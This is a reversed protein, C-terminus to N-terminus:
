ARSLGIVGIASPGGHCTIVNGAKIWETREFGLEGAREDVAARVDDPLGVTWIFRLVRPEPRYAEVFDELLSISTKRLSGRYKKKAVLKGDLVEICPHLALLNGVIAAANSVRGGARLYDLNNPIFSMRMRDAIGRAAEALEDVPIDPNDRLLDATEFVVAAQGVSVHKTDVSTVYDRGRAALLASEYSCTTVASYALHLIQADPFRRHVDDFAAEFDAPTAASTKPVSGTRDYYACVDEAPFTGDDLTEDGLTVHMPVLHIGREEAIAAPIDSGTEAMLVIKSSM